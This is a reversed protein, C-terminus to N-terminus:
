GAKTAFRTWRPLKDSMASQPPGAHLVLMMAEVPVTLGHIETRRRKRQTVSCNAVNDEVESTMYCSARVVTTCLYLL